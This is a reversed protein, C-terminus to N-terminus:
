QAIPRRSLGHYFRFFRLLLFYLLSFVLPAFTLFAFYRSGALWEGTQIFPVYRLLAGLSYAATVGMLPISGTLAAFPVLWTVYWPQYQSSYFYVLPALALVSILYYVISTLKLKFKASIIIIPLFIVTVYKIGISLVLSLLSWLPKKLTFLYLSLLLLSIMPADNHANVLWEYLVLPNLAFFLQAVVAKKGALRGIIWISAGYWFIQDLKFLYLSPTFKGFGVLYYLSSLITMVPGYPSPTHIWRMFRLWTDGEFVQPAVLHPNVHYVLLEKASFLYKFVDSSLFPYSIACIFALGGIARWPFSTICRRSSLLLTLYYGLYFFIILGLYVSLSTPRDFMALQQSWSIFSTVAPHASLTLNFDVFGYSYIFLFLALLFYLWPLAKIM